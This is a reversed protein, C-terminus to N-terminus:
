TDHTYYANKSVINDSLILYSPVLDLFLFHAVTALWPFVGVGKCEVGRGVEQRM